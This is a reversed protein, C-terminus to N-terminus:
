EQDAGNWSPIEGTNRAEVAEDISTYIIGDSSAVLVKNGTYTM